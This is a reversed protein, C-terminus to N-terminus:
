CIQAAIDDGMPPPPPEEGSVSTTIGLQTCADDV